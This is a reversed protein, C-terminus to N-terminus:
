QKIHVFPLFLKLTKEEEWWREKKTKLRGKVIKKSAKWNRVSLTQGANDWIDRKGKFKLELATRQIRTRDM